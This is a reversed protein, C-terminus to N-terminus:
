FDFGASLSMGQQRGSDDRAGNPKKEDRSAGAPALTYEGTLFVSAFKIKAGFSFRQRQIAEQDPFRFNAMRDNATGRQAETCHGGLAGGTRVQFADCLPTADIVGSHASISLFSWALYPELRFTGMVGFGKSVILDVSTTTMRLQDTGTLYAVGGRVAFSPLPLNQFGEHLAVKAYGQWSLLHSQLLNVFGAGLEFAPLGLWVGKRVFAGVTTLWSDPRRAAENLESVGETASWYRADNKISTLGLEGSFQFGSFGLTAAPVALRPAMAVGLESVLSRFNEEADPPVAVAQILGGTGRKVWGCEPVPGTSQECLKLLALDHKGAHAPRASLGAAVVAVLACLRAVFRM